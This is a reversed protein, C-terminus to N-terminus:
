LQKKIEQFDRVLKSNLQLIINLDDHKNKLLQSLRFTENILENIYFQTVKQYESAEKFIKEYANHKKMKARSDIDLSNLTKLEKVLPTLAKEFEKEQTEKAIKWIELNFKLAYDDM